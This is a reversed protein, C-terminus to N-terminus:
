NMNGNWLNHCSTFPGTWGTFSASKGVIQWFKCNYICDVTYIYATWAEVKM